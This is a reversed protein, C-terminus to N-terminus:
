NILKVKKAFHRHIDFPPINENVEKCFENLLDNFEESSMGMYKPLFVISEYVRKINELAFKGFCGFQEGVPFDISLCNIEDLEDMAELYKPIMEYISINVSKTELCAKSASEFILQEAKGPNRSRLNPNVFEIWGEYKLVRILDKILKLWQPESFACWMMSIHVFDFTDPPFPIGHAANCTLFCVNSPCRDHSPFNSSDIDIGIFTSSPYELGMEMLWFGGGCGIDIVTAGMNLKEKIPSCFNGKWLHKKLIHSLTLRAFELKDSPLIYNFDVANLYQRGNYTKYSDLLLSTVEDLDKTEVNFDDIRGLTHRRVKKKQIGTPSNKSKNSM